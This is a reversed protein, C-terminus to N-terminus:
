RKALRKLMEIIEPTELLDFLKDRCINMLEEKEDDTMVGLRRKNQLVEYRDIDM